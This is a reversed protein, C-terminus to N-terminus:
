DTASASSEWAVLARKRVSGWRYDGIIGTERIVRHCPILYALSNQGVASGVARAAAPQNLAAALSGYSVLTGSPVKLLAQWVRVQFATGHVLARLPTQARARRGRDFIHASLRAAMSDDRHLRANPWDAQLASLASDPNEPDVFAFHCIGRPSQGVLCRGFPSDAVGAEIIWGGGGSKLEGPSAAELNVCLDHLRGPGSLGTDMAVDLIAKGKRLLERAHSQTLCQLFDKPTIGAWSTFLRHFHFPSLGARKSLASLDPQETHCEDLYRIIRAIREYDTM